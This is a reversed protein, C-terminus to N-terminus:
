LTKSTLVFGSWYGDNSQVYQNIKACINISSGVHRNFFIHEIEDSYSCWLGYKCSLRCTVPKKKLVNCIVDHHGIMALGSELCDIM